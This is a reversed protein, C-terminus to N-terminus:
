KKGKSRRKKGGSRVFTYYLWERVVNHKTQSFGYDTLQKLLPDLESLFQGSNITKLLRDGDYFKWELSCKAMEAFPREIDLQLKTCDDPVSPIEIAM